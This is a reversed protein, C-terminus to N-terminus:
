MGLLVTNVTTSVEPTPTLATGCVSVDVLRTNVNVPDTAVFLRTRVAARALVYLLKAKLEFAEAAPEISLVRAAM